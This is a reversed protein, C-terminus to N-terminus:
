SERRADAKRTPEMVMSASRSSRISPLYQKQWLTCYVTTSAVTQLSQAYPLLPIGTCRVATVLVPSVIGISGGAFPFGVWGLWGVEYREGM